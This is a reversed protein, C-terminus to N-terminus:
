VQDNHAKISQRIKKLTPNSRVGLWTTPWERCTLHVIHTQRTAVDEVNDIPKRCIDCTGDQSAKAQEVLDGFYQRLEYGTTADTWHRAEAVVLLRTISAYASKNKDAM